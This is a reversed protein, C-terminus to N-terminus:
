DYLGAEGPPDLERESRVADAGPDIRKIEGEEMEDDQDSVSTVASPELEPKSIHRLWPLKFPAIDQRSQAQPLSFPNSFALRAM